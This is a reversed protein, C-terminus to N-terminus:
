IIILDNPEIGVKINNLIKDQLIDFITIWNKSNNSILLKDNGYKTIKNPMGDIHKKLIIKGTHLDIKFICGNEFSTIYVIEYGFPKFMNNYLGDINISKIIINSKLNLISINSSNLVGNNIISLIYMLEEEILIKIPNKNLKISEIVNSNLDIVDISYGNNNAIYIKNNSRDIEIDGPKEGVTINEILKFKEEDIVSVSNSDSCLVLILEEYVEVCIPFKGVPLMDVIKRSAINIKYISNDYVNTLYIDEKNSSLCLAYPGIHYTDLYINLIEEEKILYKIPILKTIYNDQLDIIGISDEGTNAVIVKFEM